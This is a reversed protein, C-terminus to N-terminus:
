FRDQSRKRNIEEGWDILAGILKPKQDLPPWLLEWRSFMHILKKIKKLYAAIRPNEKEFIDEIEKALARIFIQVLGSVWLTKSISIGFRPLVYGKAKLELWKFLIDGMELFYAPPQYSEPANLSIREGILADAKQYLPGIAEELEQFDDLLKELAKHPDDTKYFSEFSIIKSIEAVARDLLEEWEDEPKQGQYPVQDGPIGSFFEGTISM